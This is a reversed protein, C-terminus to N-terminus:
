AAGTRAPLYQRIVSWEPLRLVIVGLAYVVTGAVGALTVLVLPPWAPLMRTVGDAAVGAVAALVVLRLLPVWLGNLTPGVM